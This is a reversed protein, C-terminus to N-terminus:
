EAGWKHILVSASDTKWQFLFSNFFILAVLLQRINCERTRSKRWLACMFAIISLSLPSLLLLFDNITSGLSRTIEELKRRECWERARCLCAPSFKFLFTMRSISLENHNNFFQSFTKPFSFFNLLPHYHTLNKVTL